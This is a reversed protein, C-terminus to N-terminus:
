HQRLQRCSSNSPTWSTPETGQRYLIALLILRKSKPDLINIERGLADPDAFRESGIALPSFCLALRFTAFHSCHRNRDKQDAIELRYYTIPVTRIIEERCEMTAHNMQVCPPSAHPIRCFFARTVSIDLTQLDMTQTVCVCRKSDPCTTIDLRKLHHHPMRGCHFRQICVCPEPRIAYVFHSLRHLTLVRFPSLRFLLRSSSKAM